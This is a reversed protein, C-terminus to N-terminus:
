VFPIRNIILYLFMLSTHDSDTIQLKGKLASAAILSLQWHVPCLSYFNLNVAYNHNALELNGNIFSVQLGLKTFFFMHLYSLHIHYDSVIQLVPSILREFVV